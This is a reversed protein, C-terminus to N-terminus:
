WIVKSQGAKFEDGLLGMLQDILQKRKAEDALELSGTLQGLNLFVQRIQASLNFDESMVDDPANHFARKVSRNYSVHYLFSLLTSQSDASLAM